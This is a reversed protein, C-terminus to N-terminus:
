ESLDLRQTHGHDGVSNLAKTMLDATNDNSPVCPFAFAKRIRHERIFLYSDDIHKMGPNNIPNEAVSSSSTNAAMIMMPISYSLQTFGYLYWVAQRCTTALAMNEAETTSSAISQQQKSLWSIACGNFVFAYGSISRRTDPCSAYDCDSFAVISLPVSTPFGKYKLSM